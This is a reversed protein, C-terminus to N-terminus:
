IHILSLGLAPDSNTTKAIAIQNGWTTGTTFAYFTGNDLVVDPDPADLALAPAPDASVVPVVAAAGAPSPPVAVITLGSLVVGLTLSPALLRRRRPHGARRPRERVPRLTACVGAASESLESRLNVAM